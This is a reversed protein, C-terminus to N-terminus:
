LLVKDASQGWHSDHLYEGEKQRLGKKEWSEAKCDKYQHQPDQFRHAEVDDSGPKQYPSSHDGNDVNYQDLSRLSQLSLEESLM